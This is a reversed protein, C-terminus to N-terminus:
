GRCDAAHMTEFSFSLQDGISPKKEDGLSFGSKNGQHIPSSLHLQSHIQFNCFNNM